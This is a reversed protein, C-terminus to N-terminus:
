CITVVTKVEAEFSNSFASKEIRPRLSASNRSLFQTYLKYEELRAAEGKESLDKSYYLSSLSPSVSLAKIGRVCICAIQSLSRTCFHPIHFLCRRQKLCRPHFPQLISWESTFNIKGSGRVSSAQIRILEKSTPNEKGNEKSRVKELYARAIEANRNWEAKPFKRM